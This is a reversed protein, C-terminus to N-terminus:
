LLSPHKGPMTPYSAQPPAAQQYSTALAAQQHTLGPSQQQTAHSHWPLQQQLGPPLGQWQNLQQFQAPGASQALLGKQAATTASSQRTQSHASSMRTSQTTLNALPDSCVLVRTTPLFQGAAALMDLTGTSVSLRHPKTIVSKLFPWRTQSFLVAQM